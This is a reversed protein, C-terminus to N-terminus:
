LLGQTAEGNQPCQTLVSGGRHYLCCRIAARMSVVSAISHQFTHGLDTSATTTSAFNHNKENHESGNVGSISNTCQSVQTARLQWCFGSYSRGPSSLGKTKFHAIETFPSRTCMHSLSSPRLWSRPVFRAQFTPAILVLDTGGESGTGGEMRVDERTTAGWCVIHM